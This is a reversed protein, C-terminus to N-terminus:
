SSLVSVFPPPLNAAFQPRCAVSRRADEQRHDRGRAFDAPNAFRYLLNRSAESPAPHPKGLRQRREARHDLHGPRREGGVREGGLRIEERDAGVVENLVRERDVAAVVM